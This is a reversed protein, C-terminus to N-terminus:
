REHFFPRSRIGDTSRGFPSRAPSVARGTNRQQSLLRLSSPRAREAGMFFRVPGFVRRKLASTSELRPFPAYLWALNRFF